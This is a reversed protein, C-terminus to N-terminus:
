RTFEVRDVVCRYDIIVGVAVGPVLLRFVGAGLPVICVSLGDQTADLRADTVALVGVGRLPRSFRDVGMGFGSVPVIM